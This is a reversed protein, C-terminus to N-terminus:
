ISIKEKKTGAMMLGLEEISVEEPRVIGMIEGDCIVAIRNSINIIEEIENSVYLVALGKTIEEIIRKHVYEYAGVDLGRTPYMAILLSLELHLERSLIL